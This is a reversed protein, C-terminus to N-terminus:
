ERVDSTSASKAAIGTATSRVRATRAHAYGNRQAEARERLREDPEHGDHEVLRVGQDLLPLVVEARKVPRESVVRPREIDVPLRDRDRRRRRDNARRAGAVRLVLDDLERPEAGPGAVF